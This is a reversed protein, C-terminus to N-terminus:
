DITPVRVGRIRARPQHSDVQDTARAFSQDAIYWSGNNFEMGKTLSFDGRSSDAVTLHNNSHNFKMKTISRLLRPPPLPPPYLGSQKGVLYDIYRVLPCRGEHLNNIHRLASSKRTFDEACIPCAWIPKSM